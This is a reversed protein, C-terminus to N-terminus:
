FKIQTCYFCRSLVFKEEIVFCFLVFCFLVFVLLLGFFVFIFRWMRLLHDDGFLSKDNSSLGRVASVGLLLLSRKLLLFFDEVHLLHDYV